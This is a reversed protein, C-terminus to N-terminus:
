RTSDTSDEHWVLITGHGLGCRRENRVDQRGIESLEDV